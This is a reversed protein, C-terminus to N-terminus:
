RPPRPEARYPPAVGLIHARDSAKAPLDFGPQLNAVAADSQHLRIPHKLAQM